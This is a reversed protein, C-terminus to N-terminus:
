RKRGGDSWAIGKRRKRKREARSPAQAPEGGRQRTTGQAGNEGGKAVGGREAIGKPPEEASRWVGSNRIREFEARPKRESPPHNAKRQKPKGPAQKAITKEMGAKEGNRSPEFAARQLEERRESDSKECMKDQWGNSAEKESRGPNERESQAPTITDISITKHKFEEHLEVNERHAALHDKRVKENEGIVSRLKESLKESKREKEKQSSPMESVAPM